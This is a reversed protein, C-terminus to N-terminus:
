WGHDDVLAQEDGDEKRPDKIESNVCLLVNIQIVLVWSDNVCGWFCPILRLSAQHIISACVHKCVVWFRCRGEFKRTPVHIRDLQLMNKDVRYFLYLWRNERAVIAMCLSRRLKM